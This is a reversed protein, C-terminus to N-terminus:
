KAAIERVERRPYAVKVGAIGMESKINKYLDFYVSWYDATKAYPRVCLVVSHDTFRIIEVVPAPDKLVKETKNIAGMVIAKVNDVDEEYPMSVELDVRLYEFASLNTMIGSTATGNPIIVKKNDPTKIVTNFIQIEEIHGTVGQIDVLDGVRYPKFIMVMVGSAFHGLTGQLALGVAFGAMGILAIFSTTEIGVMGAVTFILLVKMLVGAISSLFPVVDKDLGAKYMGREVTKYLRNVIWLGVLLVIIAGVLKPAWRYLEEVLLGLKETLLEM